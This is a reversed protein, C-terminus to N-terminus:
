DQDDVDDMDYQGSLRRRIHSWSVGVTLIGVIVLSGLWQVVTASGRPVVGWYVLGWVLVGFFAGALFIGVGGLSRLTARLLVVWGILLLVGAIAKPPTFAYPQHTLWHWLSWGTANWTGLVVVLALLFRWGLSGWGFRRAM